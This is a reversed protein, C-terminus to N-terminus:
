LSKSEGAEDKYRLDLIQNSSREKSALIPQQSTLGGGTAISLNLGMRRQASRPCVEVQQLLPHIRWNEVPHLLAETAPWMNRAPPDNFLRPLEHNPQTLPCLLQHSKGYNRMKWQNKMPKGSFCSFNYSSQCSAASSWDARDSLDDMSRDSLDDASVAAASSCKWKSEAWALRM